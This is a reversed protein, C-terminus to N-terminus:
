GTMSGAPPRLVATRGPRDSPRALQLHWAEPYVDALTGGWEVVVLRARELYDELGMEMLVRADPLRYADVHVITGAPTPYEHVLTYSPSSTRDPGGLAAVLGAVLTTKGAGLPGDILLLAGPPLREALDSAFAHTAAADPLTRQM